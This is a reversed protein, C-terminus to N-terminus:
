DEERWKLINMQQGAFMVICWIKKKVGGLNGVSTVRFIASDVTFSGRVGQPLDPIRAYLDEVSLFSTKEKKKDSAKTRSGSLGEREEMIAGAVLDDVDKFTILVNLPAANVNVKGDGYTTLLGDIGAIALGEDQETRGPLTGGYLITKNFGKVLLLEDVTDLPGNKAKYPFDLRSYYDDTEAGDSRPTTDQDTWDLFSEILVPWLDEPVGSQKFILEWDDEKLLNVNRRAPEPEITLLIEGDGLKASYNMIALGDSLRKVPEFWKDDVDAEMREKETQGATKYEVSRSMLMRAVELGSRALYDAKTRKKCYSTIGAELRADFAFSVVFMSLLAIVWLVVILASGRRNSEKKM